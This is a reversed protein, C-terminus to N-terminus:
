LLFSRIFNFNCIRFCEFIFDSGYKEVESSFDSGLNGEKELSVLRSFLNSDKEYIDMNSDTLLDLHDLLYYYAGFDDKSIDMLFSFQKSKCNGQVLKSVVEQLNTGWSFNLFQDTLMYDPVSVGLRRFEKKVRRQEKSLFLAM